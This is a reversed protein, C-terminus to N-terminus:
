RSLAKSLVICHYDRGLEHETDDFQEIQNFGQKFWFRFADTNEVYVNLMAKDFPSYELAVDLVSDVAEKGLGRSQYDPILCLMPIWLCGKYPFNLELQIYGIAEGEKTSIKRLYFAELDDPHKPLASKSILAQYEAIPWDRFTHDYAVKQHNSDFLSKALEAQTADFTSFILRKSEWYSPLM